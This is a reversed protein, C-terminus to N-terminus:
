NLAFEILLKLIMLTVFKFIYINKSVKFEDNIHMSKTMNISM